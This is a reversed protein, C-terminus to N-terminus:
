NVGLRALWHPDPFVGMRSHHTHGDTKTSLIPLADNFTMLVSFQQKVVADSRTMM